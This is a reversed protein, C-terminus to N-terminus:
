FTLPSTPCEPPDTKLPFPYFNFPPFFIFV